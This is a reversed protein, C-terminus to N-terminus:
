KQFKTMIPRLHIRLVPRWLSYQHHTQETVVGGSPLLEWKDKCDTTCIVMQDVEAGRGHGKQEAVM